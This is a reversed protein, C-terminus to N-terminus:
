HRSLSWASLSYTSEVQSEISDPLHYFFDIGVFFDIIFGVILAGTQLTLWKILM